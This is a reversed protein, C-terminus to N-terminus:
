ASKKKREIRWVCRQKDVNVATVPLIEAPVYRCVAHAWQGPSAGSDGDKAVCQSWMTFNGYDKKQVIRLCFSNLSIKKYIISILKNEVFNKKKLTELM